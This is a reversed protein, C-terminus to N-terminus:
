KYVESIEKRWFEDFDLSKGEEHEQLAAQIDKLLTQNSLIEIRELMSEFEEVSILIMPKDSEITITSM